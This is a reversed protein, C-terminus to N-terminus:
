YAPRVGVSVDPGGLKEYIAAQTGFGGLALAFTFLGGGSVVDLEDVNLERIENPENSTTAIM